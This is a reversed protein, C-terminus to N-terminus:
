VISPVWQCPQPKENKYTKQKLNEINQSIAFARPSKEDCKLKTYSLNHYPYIYFNYKM